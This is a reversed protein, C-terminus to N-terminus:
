KGATPSGCRTGPKVGKILSPMHLALQAVEVVNLVQEISLMDNDPQGNAWNIQPLLGDVSHQTLLAINEAEYYVTKM